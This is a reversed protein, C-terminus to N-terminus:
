FTTKVQFDLCLDNEVDGEYELLEKLSRALTPEIGSLSELSPKEGKLKAYMVDPFPVDLIIGNYIALGIIMGTLEFICDPESSKSNFWVNQTEGCNM